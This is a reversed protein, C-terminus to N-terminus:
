SIRLKRGARLPTKKSIRNLKCLATVSVGYRKSIRGLTDGSRIKHYRIKKVEKLYDFHAPTITTEAHVLSDSEFNYFKAPDIANGQYRVEFHLHPGSSRGTNGGFGVMEGAKVVQGVTVISNTLHGYLTELGNSHRILVYNGYGRRDYKAIRVIGDFAAYVSDGINLKLDTGYHWRYKRMGFNSTIHTGKIPASWNMGNSLDFLTVKVTDKFNKGDIGYPNVKKSDWVSYYDAFKYWVSDIIVSENKIEAPSLYGGGVADEGEESDEESEAIFAEEEEMYEDPLPEVETHTFYNVPKFEFKFATDPRIDKVAPIQVERVAKKKNALIQTYGTGSFAFVLVIVIAPLYSKM